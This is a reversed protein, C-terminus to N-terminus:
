LHGIRRAAHIDDLRYSFEDAICRLADEKVSFVEASKSEALEPKSRTVASRLCATKCAETVPVIDATDQPGVSLCRKTTTNVM